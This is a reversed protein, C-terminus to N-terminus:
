TIFNAMNSLKVISDTLQLIIYHKYYTFSIHTHLPLPINTAYPLQLVCPSGTGTGSQAGCIGCLSAQLQILIETLSWFSVAQAM